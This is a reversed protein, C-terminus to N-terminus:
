YFQRHHFAGSVTNGSKELQIICKNTNVVQKLFIPEKALHTFPHGAYFIKLYNKSSPRHCNVFCAPASSYAARLIAAGPFLIFPRAPKTGTPNVQRVSQM